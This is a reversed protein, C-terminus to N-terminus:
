SRRAALRKVLTLRNGRSPDPRYHVDDVSRRILHWGLGGIPRERWDSTTDAPAISEPAFARGHDVITVRVSEADAEFVLAISGDARGDYGHEIVNNCAEDVALQLDTAASPAAGAERCARAVFARARALNELRAPFSTESRM